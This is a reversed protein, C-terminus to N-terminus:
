PGFWLGPTEGRGHRWYRGYVYPWHSMVHHTHPRRALMAEVDKAPSRLTDGCWIGGGDGVRQPLTRVSPKMTVTEGAKTPRDLQGAEAARGGYDSRAVGTLDRSLARCAGMWEDRRAASEASFIFKRTKTHVCFEFRGPEDKAGRTVPTDPLIIVEGSPKQGAGSNKYYSLSLQDGGGRCVGARLTCFRRKFATNIKGRKALWGSMGRFGILRLREDLSLDALVLGGSEVARLTAVRRRETELATQLLEQRRQAAEAEARSEAIASAAEARLAHERDAAWNTLAKITQYKDQDATDQLARLQSDKEAERRRSAELHARMTSMYSADLIDPFKESGEKKADTTITAATAAIDGITCGLALHVSERAGAQRELDYEAQVAQFQDPNQRRMSHTMENLRKRLRKLKRRSAKERARAADLEVRIAAERQAAAQREGQKQEELASVKARSQEFAERFWANIQKHMPSRPVAPATAISGKYTSAATTTAAVPDSLRHPSTKAVQVNPGGGRDRALVLSGRRLPATAAAIGTPHPHSRGRTSDAGGTM